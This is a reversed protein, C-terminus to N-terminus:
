DYRLRDRQAFRDLPGLLSIADFVSRQDDVGNWIERARMLRLVARRTIEGLYMGSVMKEYTQQGPNLSAADVERDIRSVPLTKGTDGFAGNEMNIVMKADPGFSARTAEDLTKINEVGGRRVRREHLELFSGVRTGIPSRARAYRTGVTDSILAVVTGQVGKKRMSAHLLAVVDEGVVGPDHGKDVIYAECQRDLDAKLSVFLHIRLASGRRRGDAPQRHM